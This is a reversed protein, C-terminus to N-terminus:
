FGTIEARFLSTEDAYIFELTGDARFVPGAPVTACVARERGDVVVLMREGQKATFAVHNGDPSFEFHGLADYDAGKKGDVVLFFKDGRRCGYALHRSDDSFFMGGALFDMPVEQPQADIVVQKKGGQHALYAVKRSDPSFILSSEVGLHYDRRMSAQVMSLGAPVSGGIGDYVPGPLGDVVVYASRNTRGVAYALRQSDPSFALTQDIIGEIAREPEGEVVLFWQSAQMATYATRRGDPSFAFDVGVQTFARQKKGDIVYFWRSGGTRDNAAYAHRSGDHSFRPSRPDIGDFFEGAQGNVVARMKRRSETGELYVVGRGNASFVAPQPWPALDGEGEATAEGDIVAVWRGRKRAAYAHRRGDFSFALTDPRVAEFRSGERGNVVCFSDFADRVFCGLASGDPSFEPHSIDLYSKGPKGDRRVVVAQGREGEVAAVHCGARTMTSALSYPHKVPTTQGSLLDATKVRAEPWQVAAQVNPGALWGALLIAQSLYAILKM